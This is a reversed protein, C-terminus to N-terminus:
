GIRDQAVDIDIVGNVGLGVKQIDMKINYKWKHWPTVFMRKGESKGGFRGGDTGSTGVM